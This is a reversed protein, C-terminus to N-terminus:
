NKMHMYPWPGLRSSTVVRKGAIPYLNEAFVSGDGWPRDRPSEISSWWGALSSLFGCPKAPFAAVLNCIYFVPLPSHSCSFHRIYTSFPPSRCYLISYMVCHNSIIPYGLFFDLAWLALLFCFAETGKRPQLLQWPGSSVYLSPKPSLHFFPSFCFSLFFLISLTFPLLLDSAVAKLLVSPLSLSWAVHRQPARFSSESCSYLFSSLFLSSLFSLIYFRFPIYLLRPSNFRGHSSKSGFATTASVYRQHATGLLWLLYRRPRPWLLSKATSFVAHGLNAVSSKTPHGVMVVVAVRDPIPIMMLSTSTKTFGTVISLSDSSYPM